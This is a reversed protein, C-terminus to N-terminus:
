VVVEVLVVVLLSTIVVVVGVEGGIGEVVVVIAV